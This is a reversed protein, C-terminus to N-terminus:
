YCGCDAEAFPNFYLTEFEEGSLRVADEASDGTAKLDRQHATCRKLVEAIQEAREAEPIGREPVSLLEMARVWGESWGAEALWVSVRSRDSATRLSELMTEIPLYDKISEIQKL